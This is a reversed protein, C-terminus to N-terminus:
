SSMSSFKNKEIEINKREHIINTGVNVAKVALKIDENNDDILLEKKEVPVNEIMRKLNASYVM